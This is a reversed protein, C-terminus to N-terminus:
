TSGNRCGRFTNTYGSYITRNALLTKLLFCVCVCMELNKIITIFNSLVFKGKPMRKGRLLYMIIFPVIIVLVVSAVVIFMVLNAILFRETENDTSRYIGDEYESLERPAAIM